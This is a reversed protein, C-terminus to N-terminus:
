KSLKQCMECFVSSKLYLISSIRASFEKLLLSKLRSSKFNEILNKWNANWIMTKRMVTKFSGMDYRGVIKNKLNKLSNTVSRIPNKALTVYIFGEWVETHIKQLRHDKLNFNEKM